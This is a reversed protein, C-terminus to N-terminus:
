AKVFGARIADIFDAAQEIAWRADDFSPPEASYDALLRIDHVRNLARGFAADIQGSLVIKKGFAAILSHHTKIITDPAENGTAFLAAQAADHMAYYARSCAGETKNARLLFQAEELAREAKGIYAAATSGTM